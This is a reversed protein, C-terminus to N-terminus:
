PCRSKRSPPPHRHCSPTAGELPRASASSRGFAPPIPVAKLFPGFKQGCSSPQPCSPSAVQIEGAVARPTKRFRRVRRAVPTVAWPESTPRFPSFLHVRERAHRCYIPPRPLHRELPPWAHKTSRDVHHHHHPAFESRVGRMLLWAPRSWQGSTIDTSTDLPPRRMPWTM